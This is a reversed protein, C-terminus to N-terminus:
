RLKINFREEMATLTAEPVDHENVGGHRNEVILSFVKYGYKAAMDVYPKMEKVTTSTNSIVIRPTNGMMQTECKNQCVKHAYGQNEPKWKYEGDIMHYDDACCAGGPALELLSALTSKGCGPVGRLIILSKEADKPIGIWECETCKYTGLDVDYIAISTCNGCEGTLKKREM